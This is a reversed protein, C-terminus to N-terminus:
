YAGSNRFKAGWQMYQNSRSLKECILCRESERLLTLKHLKSIYNYENM